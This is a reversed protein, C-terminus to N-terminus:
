HSAAGLEVFSYIFPGCCLGLLKCHAPPPSPLWSSIDKSPGLFTLTMLQLAKLSGSLFSMM